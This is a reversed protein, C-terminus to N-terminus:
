QNSIGKIIADVEEKTFGNNIMDDPTNFIHPKPQPDAAAEEHTRAFIRGGRSWVFKYAKKDDKQRLHYMMRSRLPTVDEYLRVNKLYAPCEPNFQINKSAALLKDKLDRRNFRVILQPIKESKQSAAARKELESKSMLRHGCSIDGDEIKIGIVKGIDKTINNVSEENRYEVGHIKINERRNYQALADNDFHCQRIDAELKNIVKLQEDIVKQKEKLKIDYSEQVENNINDQREFINEVLVRLGHLMHPPVTHEGKKGFDEVSQKFLTLVLNVDNDRTAMVYYTCQVTILTHRYPSCVIVGVICVFLVLRVSSVCM